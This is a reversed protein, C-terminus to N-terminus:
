IVVNIIFDINGLSYTQFFIYLKKKKVTKKIKELYANFKCM